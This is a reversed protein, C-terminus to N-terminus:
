DEKASPLNKPKTSHVLNATESYDLPPFTYGAFRCSNPRTRREHIWKLRCEIPHVTQCPLKKKDSDFDIKNKARTNINVTRKAKKKDRQLVIVAVGDHVIVQFLDAVEVDLGWSQESPSALVWLRAHELGPNQARVDRDVACLTHAHRPADHGPVGPLCHLM